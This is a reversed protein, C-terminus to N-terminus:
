VERAERAVSPHGNRLYGMLMPLSRTNLCERTVPRDLYTPRLFIVSVGNNAAECLKSAEHVTKLGAFYATSHRLVAVNRKWTNNRVAAHDGLWGAM